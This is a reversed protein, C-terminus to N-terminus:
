TIERGQFKVSFTGSAETDFDDSWKTYRNLKAGTRVTFDDFKVETLDVEEIHPPQLCM